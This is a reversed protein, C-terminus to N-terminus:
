SAPIKALEGAAMLYAYDRFDPEGRRGRNIYVRLKGGGFQGLLLDPLGDGDLDHLVPAAHGVNVDIPKGGARVRVPPALEGPGGAPVLTSLAGALVAALAHNPM